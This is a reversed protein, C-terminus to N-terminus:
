STYEYYVSIAFSYTGAQADDPISAKTKFEIFGVGNYDGGARITPTLYMGRSGMSPQYINGSGGVFTEIDQWASYLGPQISNEGFGTQAFCIWLRSVVDKLNTHSSTTLGDYTTIRVNQASTINTLMEFNNYLRFTLYDSEEGRLIYYPGLGDKTKVYSFSSIVDYPSTANRFSLNPPNM